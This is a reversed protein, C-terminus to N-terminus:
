RSSKKDADSAGLEQTRDQGVGSLLFAAVPVLVLILLILQEESLIRYEQLQFLGYTALAILVTWAAAPWTFGSGWSRPEPARGPM